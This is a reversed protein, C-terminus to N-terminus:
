NYGSQANIVAPSGTAPGTVTIWGASTGRIGDLLLRTYTGAQLQLTDGPQLARLQTSVNAPTASLTAARTERALGTLALVCLFGAAMARASFQVQTRGGSRM